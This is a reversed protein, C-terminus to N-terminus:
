EWRCLFSEDEKIKDEERSLEMCLFFNQKNEELDDIYRHTRLQDAAGFKGNPHPPSFIVISSGQTMLRNLTARDTEESVPSETEGSSRCKIDHKPM